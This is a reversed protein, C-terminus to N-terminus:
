GARVRRATLPEGMSQEVAAFTTRSVLMRHAARLMDATLATETRENIATAMRVLNSATGLAGSDPTNALQWLYRVADPTLRMKGQAFVKRIEEITYLPEGPGGDDTRTRETLDKACGIRRRIQALSDQGGAQRRQLYSVVDSTGCWLHPAGTADFLDALVYLPKDGPHAGCLCHIQDILLMRSTGALKEKIRCYRQKMGGACNIKLAEGIAKILGAATADLKGLTVVVSGPKSAAIAHLAMTKGMGASEPGYVLGITKLTSAVEAVAMIEEAVRTTVFGNGKATSDRKVQAELWLDLDIIHQQWNSQYTGNLILGLTTPSIGVSRAVASRSMRTEGIYDIISQCVEDRMEQRVADPLTSDPIIRSAGKIRSSNILQDIPTHAM